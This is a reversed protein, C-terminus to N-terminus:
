HPVQRFLDKGGVRLRRSFKHIFSVLSLLPGVLHSACDQVVFLQSKFPHFLNCLGSLRGQCLFDEVATPTASQFVVKPQLRSIKRNSTTFLRGQDVQQLWPKIVERVLILSNLLDILRRVSHYLRTEM